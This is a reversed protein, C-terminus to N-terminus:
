GPISPQPIQMTVCHLSGYQEILGRCDVGIIERGPFHPALRARAIGDAPDGYAPVLVARNIILFNAYGAPLRRGDAAHIPAPLPLPVLQYAEGQRDRFNGLEEAMVALEAYHAENRDDCGQYAITHPDCFRALTDIHGDTDDGALNGHELWLIQVVGFHECLTSEIDQRTLAPNRTPALLCRQTTMLSGNGDVELAGGELVFDVHEVPASWAGVAALRRTLADDRASPFKGGWGNFRFDLHVCGAGRQVTLPGHDRAWVDDNPVEFVRLRSAPVGANLLQRQVGPADKAVNVHLDEFRGIATALALFNSEVRGFFPGFDGDRRPWTLM